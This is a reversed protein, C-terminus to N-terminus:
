GRVEDSLLCFRTDVLDEPKSFASAIKEFLGKKGRLLVVKSRDAFIVKERKGVVQRIRGLLTCGCVGTM